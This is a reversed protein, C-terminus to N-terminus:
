ASQILQEGRVGVANTTKVEFPSKYQKPQKTQKVNFNILIPNSILNILNQRYNM